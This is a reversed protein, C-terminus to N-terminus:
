RNQNLRFRFPISVWVSVPGNNMIAPTFVWQMAADISPQNFLDADSKMVEAKKALGDKGVWIRVWATGEIGARRAIDPYVPVVAKVAVPFKEVVIFDPPASEEEPNLAAGPEYAGVGTGDGGDVISGPNKSYDIQSPITAEPSVSGEPVPVPTGMQPRADASAISIHPLAVSGTISPPPLTWIIGKKIRAPKLEDPPFMKDLTLYAGIICLHVMTATLLSRMAVKQYAERLEQYGYNLTATTTM